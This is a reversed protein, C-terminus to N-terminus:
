LEEDDSPLRINEVLKIIKESRVQFTNNILTHAAFIIGSKLDDSLEATKALTIIDDNFKVKIQGEFELKKDKQYFKLSNASVIRSDYYIVVNGFAKLVNSDQEFEVKDATIIIGNKTLNQSSILERPQFVLGLCCFFLIM